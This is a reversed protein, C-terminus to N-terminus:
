YNSAKLVKFLLLAIIITLVAFGKELYTEALVNGITNLLFFGFFFWLIGNVLKKSVKVSVYNAKLCIVLILFGVTIASILEFVYMEKLTTLKGGWVIEFPIIQLLILLHFTLLGLCIALLFRISKKM